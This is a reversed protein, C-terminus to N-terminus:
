RTPVLYLHACFRSFDSVQLRKADVRSFYTPKACRLRGGSRVVGGACMGPVRAPSCSLAGGELARRAPRARAPAGWPGVRADPRGGRSSWADFRTPSTRSIVPSKPHRLGNRATLCMPCFHAVHVGPM